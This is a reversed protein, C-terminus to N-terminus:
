PVFTKHPAPNKRKIKKRNKSKLQLDSEMSCMTRRALNFEAFVSLLQFLM